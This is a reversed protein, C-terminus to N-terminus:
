QWWFSVSFSKTLATVHHWWKVPLFLMEGPGLVCKYMKALKFKPFKEYDPNIPDIQATNSLLTDEHPYLYPTDEPSFLILQKYGYVQALINNKPDQHLPSVTGKPGLWANIDPETSEEYNLSCCCYEPVRIDEKLESIQDFLNHQALYGINGHESLYHEKIFDRLTMLKQGWDEDTYRSGLEIPVTRNGAIKLLYNLDQWKTTAPWHTMCGKLKLPLQPNFFKSIFTELSPVELEEIKNEAIINVICEKDTNAQNIVVPEEVLQERIIKATETLLEENNNIPAGLLLGMDVSKLCQQLLDTDIKNSLQLLLLAEVFSAITYNQRTEIPVKSWHGTNLEDYLYNLVFKIAFIIDNSDEHPNLCFKLCKELTQLVHCNLSSDKKIELPANILGFLQKILLDKLNVSM